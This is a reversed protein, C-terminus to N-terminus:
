FIGTLVVRGRVLSALAVDFIGQIFTNESACVVASYHSPMHARAREKWQQELGPRVSGAPVSHTHQEGFKDTMVEPLEAPPIPIYQGWTLVREGSHKTVYYFVVHGGCDPLFLFSFEELSPVRLQLSTLTEESVSGRWLVYGAPAPVSAPSVFHRCTSLYGDAGIVLDFERPTTEGDLHVIAKHNRMGVELVKSNYHIVEESIQGFFQTFIESWSMLEIQVPQKWVLRGNEPEIPSPVIRNFHACHNHKVSDNFYGMAKVSNIVSTPVGIGVGRDKFSDKSSREFVTVTVGLRLLSLANLHGAISGGIIAVNLEKALM